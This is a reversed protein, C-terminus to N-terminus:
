TFDIGFALDEGTLPLKVPAHHRAESLHIALVAEIAQLGDSGSCLTPADGELVDRYAAAIVQDFEGVTPCDSLNFPVEHLPLGYSMMPKDRQDAARARLEWRNAVDEFRARGISGVIEVVPPVGLDEMQDLYVRAGDALHMVAHGGPDTFQPGRPDPTGTDDVWGSVSVMDQGSLMRVLDVMHTANCGLRGAGLSVLFSRPSGVIGDALADRLRQHAPSWRRTHNIALRAGAVECAAIMKRADAVCTAMPKECLIAKVGAEAAAVTLMAHSPGNTVIAVVDLAAARLMGLADDFPQGAPAHEAFKELRSPDRDAYAVVQVEPLHALGRIHSVAMGGCGIIGARITSM